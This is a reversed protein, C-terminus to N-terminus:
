AKAKQYHRAQEFFQHMEILKKDYNRKQEAYTTRQMGLAVAMEAFRAPIGQIAPFKLEMAASKNVAMEEWTWGDLHMLGAQGSIVQGAGGGGRRGEGATAPMVMVSTIGNARTVPIHESSPNVAILARLQHDFEGIEHTKASERVSGM